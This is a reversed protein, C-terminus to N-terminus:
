RDVSNSYFRIPISSEGHITRDTQQDTQSSLTNHCFPQNSGSATQSPSHPRDLSPINSLPPSGRLSPATKPYVHPMRNYGIPVAVREKWIVELLVQKTTLLHEMTAKDTMARQRGTNANSVTTNRIRLHLRRVARQQRRGDLRPCRTAATASTTLAEATVRGALRHFRATLRASTLTAAPGPALFV